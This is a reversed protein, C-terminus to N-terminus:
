GLVNYARPINKRCFLLTIHQSVTSKKGREIGNRHTLILCKRHWAVVSTKVSKDYGIFERASLNFNTSEIPFEIKM